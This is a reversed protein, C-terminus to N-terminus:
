SNNVNQHYGENNSDLQEIVFFRHKYGRKKKKM